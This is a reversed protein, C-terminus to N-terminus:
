LEADDWGKGYDLIPYQKWIREAVERGMESLYQEASSFPWEQWNDVYGHRVPNHHIYNMTAWFHAENRMYRESAGCWVQRKRRQEEGNWEYSTQGHMKGLADLVNLIKRTEILVHYHNPLVCWAHILAAEVQLTTSLLHCFDALREATHGIHALHDYCAATIHYRTHESARHPPRHWPLGQQKRWVMLKERQALTLKRWLYIPKGM